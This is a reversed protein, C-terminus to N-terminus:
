KLSIWGEPMSSYTIKASEPFYVKKNLNRNLWAAWWSFTSNAIVNHKCYSMFMMDKSAQGPDLNEVFTADSMFNLEKKCWLIDDSFVLFKLGSKSATLLDYAKHYYGPKCMPFTEPYREYDGRRVHVAVSENNEIFKLLEKDKKNLEIKFQYIKRIKDEVEKFYIENNWYGELYIDDLDKYDQLNYEKWFAYSRHKRGFLRRRIRHAIKYSVDAFKLSIHEPVSDKKLDLDFVRDLELGNHAKWHYTDIDLKVKEEGHWHQMQKFFAYQFMQNGLGSRLRIIIM